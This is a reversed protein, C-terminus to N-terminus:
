AQNSFPGRGYYKMVMVVKSFHTYGRLKEKSLRYGANKKSQFASLEGNVFKTGSDVIVLDGTDVGYDPLDPHKDAIFAGPTMIGPPLLDNPTSIDSM